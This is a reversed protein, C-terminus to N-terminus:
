KLGAQRVIEDESLGTSQMAKQMDFPKNNLMYQKPTTNSNTTGGFAGDKVTSLDEEIGLGKAEPVVKYIEKFDPADKGKLPDPNNKLWKAYGEPDETEFPELLKKQGEWIGHRDVAQLYDMYNVVWNIGEKYQSTTPNMGKILSIMATSRLATAPIHLATATLPVITNLVKTLKQGTATLQGTLRGAGPGYALGEKESEKLLQQAVNTQIHIENLTPLDAALKYYQKTAEGNDKLLFSAVSLSKQQEPNLSQAIKLQQAADQDGKNARTQLDNLFATNKMLPTAGTKAEADTQAKELQEAHAFQLSTLGAMMTNMDFKAPIGKKADDPLNPYLMNFTQAAKNPDINGTKPDKSGMMVRGWFGTQVAVTNSYAVNDADKLTDLNKKYDIQKNMFDVAAPQNGTAVLAKIYADSGQKGADRITQADMEKQEQEKTTMQERLLQQQGIQGAIRLNQIEQGTKLGNLLGSAFNDVGSPPAMVEPARIGTGMLPERNMQLPQLIGYNAAM